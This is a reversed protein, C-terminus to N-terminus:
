KGSIYGRKILYKRRDKKSFGIRKEVKDAHSVRSIGPVIKHTAHDGQFEVQWFQGKREKQFLDVLKHNHTVLILTNGIKTFDNLLDWSIQMKEEITTGEALEDLIVLSKPTISYFIDRTRALETGFRGETDELADFRPAQYAMRDAINITARSALIDSGIQALLQNQFISKCITTKGGSNPGTIFTLRAGSLDVSNSVFHRDKKGLVPNKLDEAVFRHVPEDTVEPTITPGVAAKSFALMSHLEDLQGVADVAQRFSRDAIAKDSLPFIIRRTDIIPKVRNAMMAAMGLAFSIGFLAMEPSNRQVVVDTLFPRVTLAIFPVLPIITSPGISTPWFRLKPTWFDVDEKPLLEKRTSYIPGRMLRYVASNKYRNIARIIHKLYLTQPVPIAEAAKHMDAAAKAGAKFRGYPWQIEIDKNILRFLAEERVLFNELYDVVANRLKDDSRLEAVSEQKKKVTEGDTPPQMLSRYLSAAGVGTMTHDVAEYLSDIQVLEYSQRDSITPEILESLREREFSEGRPAHLFTDKKNLSILSQQEKM